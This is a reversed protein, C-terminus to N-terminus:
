PLGFELLASLNSMNGVIGQRMGKKDAARVWIVFLAIRIELREPRHQDLVELRVEGRRAM